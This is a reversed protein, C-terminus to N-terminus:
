LVLLKDADFHVRATSPPPPNGPYSFGGRQLSGIGATAEAGTENPKTSPTTSLLTAESFEPFPMARTCFILQAREDFADLTQLLLLRRQCAIDAIKEGLGFRGSEVCLRKAGDDPKALLIGGLPAIPPQEPSRCARKLSARLPNADFCFLRAAPPNAEGAALANLSISRASRPALPAARQAPKAPRMSMKM